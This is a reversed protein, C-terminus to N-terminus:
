GGIAYSYHGTWWGADGAFRAGLKILGAIVGIFGAIIALARLGGSPANSFVALLLIGSMLTLLSDLGINM